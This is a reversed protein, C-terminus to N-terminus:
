EEIIMSWQDDDDTARSQDYVGGSILDWRTWGYEACNCMVCGNIWEYACEIKTKTKPKTQANTITM